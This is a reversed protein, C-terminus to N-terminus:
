NSATCAVQGKFGVKYGKFGVKYLVLSIGLQESHM